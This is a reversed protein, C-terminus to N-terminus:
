IAAAALWKAIAFAVRTYLTSFSPATGFADFQAVYGARDGADFGGWIAYSPAGL